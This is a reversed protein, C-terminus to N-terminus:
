LWSGVTLFLTRCGLDWAPARVSEPRARQGLHCQAGAVRINLAIAAVVLAAVWLVIQNEVHRWGRSYLEAGYYWVEAGEPEM